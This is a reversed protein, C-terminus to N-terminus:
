FKMRNKPFLWARFSFNRRLLALPNLAFGSTMKGQFQCSDRNKSAGIHPMLRDAHGCNM